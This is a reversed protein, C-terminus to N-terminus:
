PIIWIKRTGVLVIFCFLSKFLGNSCVKWMVSIFCLIMPIGNMVLSMGVILINSLLILIFSLYVLICLVAKANKWLIFM